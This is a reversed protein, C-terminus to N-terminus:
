LKVGTKLHNLTSLPESPLKIRRLFVVAEVKYFAKQAAGISDDILTITDGSSVLTTDVVIWSPSVLDTTRLLNYRYVEKAYLSVNVDSIWSPSVLDTTRLLNYRYVEKDYWAGYLNTVIGFFFLIFFSCWIAKM